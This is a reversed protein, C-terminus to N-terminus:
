PQDQAPLVFPVPESPQLLEFYFLTYIASIFAGSFGNIVVLVLLGVPIGLILAILLGFHPVTALAAFPALSLSLIILFLIVIALTLGFMILVLSANTALNYRFLYWAEAVADGISLDRMVTARRALEYMCFLSLFGALGVPVFLVLSVLGFSKSALFVLAAPLGIALALVISVLFNLFLLGLFRWFYSVGASISESLQYTGTRAVRNVGDILSASSILHLILALVGFSMLVLALVTHAAIQLNGLGLSSSAPDRGMQWQYALTPAVGAFAGLVWLGKYHRSIEWARNVLPRVLM